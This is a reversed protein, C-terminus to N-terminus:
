GDGRRRHFIGAMKLVFYLEVLFRDVLWERIQTSVGVCFGSNGRATTFVNGGGNPKFPRVGTRRGPWPNGVPSDKQKTFNHGRGRHDLFKKRGKGTKGMGLIKHVHLPKFLLFQFVRHNQPRRNHSLNRRFMEFFYFAQGFIFNEFKTLLQEFVSIAVKSFYRSIPSVTASPTVFLLIKFRKFAPQFFIDLTPPRAVMQARMRQPMQNQLIGFQRGLDFFPCFRFVAPFSSRCRHSQYRRQPSSQQQLFRKLRRINKQLIFLIQHLLPIPPHQLLRAVPERLFNKPIHHFVPFLHGPRGQPICYFLHGRSPFLLRHPFLFSFPFPLWPPNDRCICKKSSQIINFKSSRGAEYFLM